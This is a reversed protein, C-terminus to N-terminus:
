IFWIGLPALLAVIKERRRSRYRMKKRTEPDKIAAIRAELPLFLITKWTPLDDFVQANKMTLRNNFLRANCLPYSQVGRDIPRKPSIWFSAGNM